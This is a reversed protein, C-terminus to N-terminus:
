AFASKIWFLVPVALIVIRCIANIKYKNERAKRIEGSGNVQGATEGGM